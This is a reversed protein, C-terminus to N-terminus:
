RGMRTLLWTPDMSWERPRDLGIAEPGRTRMQPLELSCVQHGRLRVGLMDRVVDVSLGAEILSRKCGVAHVVDGSTVLWAWIIHPAEPDCAITLDAHELLWLWVPRHASLFAMERDRSAVDRPAGAREAPTTSGGARSAGARQGARSRTYGVGLMYMLASEDREASYPRLLWPSDQPLSVAATVSM